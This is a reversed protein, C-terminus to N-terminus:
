SIKFQTLSSCLVSNPFILDSFHIERCCQIADRFVVRIPEEIGKVVENLEESAEEKTLVRNRLRTDRDIGALPHPDPGLPLGM